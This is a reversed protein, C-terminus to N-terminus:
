FIGRKTWAEIAESAMGLSRNGPYPLDFEFLLAERLRAKDTKLPDEGHCYVNANSEFGVVNKFYRGVLEKLEDLQYFKQAKPAGSIIEGLIVNDEYNALVNVYGFNSDSYNTRGKTNLLQPDRTARSCIFVKQSLSAAIVLIKERDERFPVSNFVSSIVISDFKKGSAVARLFERTINRSAELDPEEKDMVHYPEFPVVDLGIAQLIKTEDLHGAGFDILSNGFRKRLKIKNEPKTHDFLECRLYQQMRIWASFGHGLYKRRLRLRRFSGYRMQSSYTRRLDFDMSVKNLYHSIYAAPLESYVVPVMEVGQKAYAFLRKIGNAIKGDNSVVIPVMIGKLLISKTFQWGSSDWYSLGYKEILEDVPEMSFKLCPFKELCQVSLEIKEEAIQNRLDAREFDNTALNFLINLGRRDSEKLGDVRVIPISSEGLEQWAKARQHGSLLESASVYAPILWGLKSLSEKILEYRKLDFVRPNYEAYKVRDIPMLEVAFARKRM